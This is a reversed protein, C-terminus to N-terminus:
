KKLIENKIYDNDSLLDYIADESLIGRKLDKPLLGSNDADLDELYDQSEYYAELKKINNQNKKFRALSNLFDDTIARSENLIAELEKIRNINKYEM